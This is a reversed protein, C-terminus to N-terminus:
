PKVLEDSLLRAKMALNHGRQVDGAAMATKSQEMFQKIQGVIEQQSPSLRRVAIKKLNEQTAATLQDTSRQHSAQEATTGEVLQIAPEDAGGNRVVKKPPPCPSLPTSGASPSGASPSGTNPSGTNPSDASPSGANAEEGSSGTGTSNTSDPPSGATTNMATPTNPCNPPIAKKHHRPRNASPKAQAPSNQIKGTPASGPQTADSGQAPQAQPHTENGQPRQTSSNSTMAAPPQGTTQSVAPTLCALGLLYFGLIAALNM